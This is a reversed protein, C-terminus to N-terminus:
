FDVGPRAVDSGSAGLMGVNPTVIGASLNEAEQRKREFYEYSNHRAVDTKGTVGEIYTNAIVTGDPTNELAVVQSYMTPKARHEIIIFQFGIKTFEWLIYEMITRTYEDLGSTVEDLEVFRRANKIVILCLNSLLSIVQAMGHGSDDDVARLEGDATHIIFELQPYVGVSTESLEVQNMEDPFVRSLAQNLNYEIFKYSTSLSKNTATQLLEVAKKTNALTELTDTLKKSYEGLEDEIFKRSRQVSIMESEEANISTILANAKELLSSM